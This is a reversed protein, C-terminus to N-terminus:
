DKTEETTDPEGPDATFATIADDWAEAESDGTGQLVLTFSYTKMSEREEVQALVWYWYGQKTGDNSIDDKWDSVPYDEHENWYGGHQDVLRQVRSSESPM